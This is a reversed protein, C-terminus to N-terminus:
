GVDAGFLDAFVRDAGVKALMKWVEWPPDIVITHYTGQPPPLPELIETIDNADRVIGLEKYAQMPTLDSMLTWDALKTGKDYTAM